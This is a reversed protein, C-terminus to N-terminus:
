KHQSILILRIEDTFGVDLRTNFASKDNYIKALITSLNSFIELLQKLYLALNVFYLFLYLPFIVM